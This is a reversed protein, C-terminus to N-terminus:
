SIGLRCAQNSYCNYNSIHMLIESLMIRGGLMNVSIIGLITAPVAALSTYVSDLYINGSSNSSNLGTHNSHQQQADKFYEPFWLLLGYYRLCVM